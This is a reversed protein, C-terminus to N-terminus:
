FTCGHPVCLFNIQWSPCILTRVWPQMVAIGHRVTNKLLYTVYVPFSTINQRPCSYPSFLISSLATCPTFDPNSDIRTKNVIIQQAVSIQNCNRLHAASREGPFPNVPHINELEQAYGRIYVLVYKKKKSNLWQGVISRIPLQWLMDLRNLLRNRLLYSLFRASFLHKGRGTWIFLEIGSLGM